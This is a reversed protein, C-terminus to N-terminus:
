SFMSLTKDKYEYKYNFLKCFVRLVHMLEMRSTHIRYAETRHEEATINDGLTKANRYKVQENSQQNGRHDLSAAIKDVFIKTSQSDEFQKVTMDSDKLNKIHESLTKYNRKVSEFSEIIDQLSSSIDDLMKTFNNVKDKKEM